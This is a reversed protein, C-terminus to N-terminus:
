YSWWGSSEKKTEKQKMPSSPNNQKQAPNQVEVEEEILLYRQHNPRQHQTKEKMHSAEMRDHYTKNGAAVLASVILVSFVGLLLFKRM